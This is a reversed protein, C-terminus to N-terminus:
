RLVASGELVKKSVELDIRAFKSLIQWLGEKTLQESLRLKGSTTAESLVKGPNEIKIEFKGGGLDIVEIKGERYASELTKYDLTSRSFGGWGASEFRIEKPLVRLTVEQPLFGELSKATQEDVTVSLGKTFDDSVGLNQVFQALNGRDFSSIKFNVVVRQGSLSVKATSKGALNEAGLLSQWSLIRTQFIVGSAISILVLVLLGLILKRHKM